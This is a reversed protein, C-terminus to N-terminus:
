LVPQNISRLVSVDLPQNNLRGVLSLSALNQESMIIKAIHSSYEQINRGDGNIISHGQMAEFEVFTKLKSMM